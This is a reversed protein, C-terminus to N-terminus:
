EQLHCIDNFLLLRNDVGGPHLKVISLSAPLPAYPWKQLSSFGLCGSIFANLLRGHSVLIIRQLGCCLRLIKRRLTRTRALLKRESEGGCRLAKLVGSRSHFIFPYHTEVDIRRMGEIYGWSCERLLPESVPSLSIERSIIEATLWARRLDSSLLLDFSGARGLRRALAAAEGTGVVSLPFDSRGQFRGEKGASTSGHRVLWLEM